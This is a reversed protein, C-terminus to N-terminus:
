PTAKGDMPAKPSFTQHDVESVGLAARDRWAAFLRRTAMARPDLDGGQEADSRYEKGNWTACLAWCHGRMWAEFLLREHETAPAGKAGLDYAAQETPAPLAVGVPRLSMLWERLAIFEANRYSGYAYIRPERLNHGNAAIYDKCGQETFCGTVFEWTDRYGVERCGNEVSDCEAFEIGEDDMWVVGDRYDANLGYIRCRQQVAFLPNTTIRNDQTHLREIIAAIKPPITM